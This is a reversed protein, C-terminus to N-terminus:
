LFVLFRCYHDCLFVYWFINETDNQIEHEPVLPTTAHPNGRLMRLGVPMLAVARRLSRDFLIRFCVFTQGINIWNIRIPPDSPSGSPETTGRNFYYAKMYTGVLFYKKSTRNHFYMSPAWYM